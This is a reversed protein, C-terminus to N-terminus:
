GTFEGAIERHVFETLADGTLGMGTGLSVKVYATEARMRRFPILGAAAFGTVSEYAAVDSPVPGLFIPVGAARCRRAFETIDTPGSPDVTCATGSHYTEHVVADFGTPDVARYDLGPYPRLFLVRAGFRVPGVPWPPPAPSRRPLQDLDAIDVEGDSHVFHRIPTSPQLRAGAHVLRRGDPNRFTVFVGGGPVAGIVELADRFNSHGNADPHDLPRNSAVVVVPVTLHCLAFALATAGYSLTDTGHTIVVGTHHPRIAATVAAAMATWDSPRANESLLSLPEIVDFASTDDYAQFLLRTQGPALGIVDGSRRSGITGGTFVVLVAGTAM